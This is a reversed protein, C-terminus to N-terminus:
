KIVVKLHVMKDGNDICSCKSEVYTYNGFRLAFLKITKFHIKVNNPSDKLAVEFHYTVDKPLYKVWENVKM